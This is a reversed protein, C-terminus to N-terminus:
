NIDEKIVVNYGTPDLEKKRWWIAAIKNRFSDEVMPTMSLSDWVINRVHNKFSREQAESLGLMEIAEFLQGNLRDPYSTHVVYGYGNGVEEILSDDEKVKKM